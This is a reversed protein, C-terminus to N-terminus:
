SRSNLDMEQVVLAGSDVEFTLLTGPRRGEMVFRSVPGFVTRLEEANCTPLYARLVRPDYFRFYLPQGEGDHVILFTRLHHRMARFDAKSLAFIGWHQGWGEELLWEAFAAGREVRVLYPATEAMDPELDGRYLCESEPEMRQLNDLLKTVSAGDLVAYLGCNGAGHLHPWILEPKPPM